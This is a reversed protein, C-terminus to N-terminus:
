LHLQLLHRSWVRATTWVATAVDGGESGTFIELNKCHPMLMIPLGWLATCLPSGVSHFETDGTETLQASFLERPEGEEIVASKGLSVRGHRNEGQREGRKQWGTM